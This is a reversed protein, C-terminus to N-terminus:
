QHTTNVRLKRIGVFNSVSPCESYELTRAHLEALDRDRDENAPEPSETRNALWEQQAKNSLRASAVAKLSEVALNLRDSLRGASRGEELLSVVRAADAPSELQEILENVSFEGVGRVLKVTEEAIRHLQEDVFMVPDFLEAVKPYLGPECILAILIDLAAAEEASEPRSRQLPRDAAERNSQVGEPRRNVASSRRKAADIQECVGERSIGLLRALQDIALGRQIADLGGFVDSTAIFEVFSRVAQLRAAPSGGGQHERLTIEWRFLLAPPASILLDEFESAARKSLFDCPDMGEPMAALFVDVQSKLAIEAGRDAARRGASDADFVLVVRPVYRRLVDSQQDTLATGLPAVTESFGHQHAMIVDTYGEVLVARGREAFARRAHNLGYLCKGKHFVATEPSNIYKASDEGLTRGGFGLVRDAPDVIPFMLRNRFADYCGGDQGKRVLGAALMLKESIGERRAKSRLFDYSDPAFGLGFRECMRESIRRSAVYDRAGKGDPSLLMQRFVVVAWRNAQLIDHRSAGSESQRNGTSEIPIRARDALMQRAEVFSISNLEMLFTFVDGAKGCGFCRFYQEVPRVHFSPTKERHFPCLGKFDRGAPKLTVFQGIVEM